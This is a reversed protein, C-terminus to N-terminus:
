MPSDGVARYTFTIVMLFLLFNLLIEDTWYLVAYFKRASVIRLYDESATLILQTVCYTLILPYQRFPGRLLLFVLVVLLLISIWGLTEFAYYSFGRPSM